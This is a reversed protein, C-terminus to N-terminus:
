EKHDFRYRYSYAREDTLWYGKGDIVRGGDRGYVKTLTGKDLTYVIVHSVNSSPLKKGCDRCSINSGWYPNHAGCSKCKAAWWRYMMREQMTDPNTITRRKTSPSSWDGWFINGSILRKLSFKGDESSAAKKNVKVYEKDSWSTTKTKGSDSYKACVQFTYYDGATLGASATFSNSTTTANNAWGASGKKGWRINYGTARSDSAWQVVVKGDDTASLTVQPVRPVEVAPIDITKRDSWDTYKLSSGEWWYARVKFAMTTDNYISSSATYSTAKGVDVPTGWPYLFSDRAWVVEFCEAINDSGWACTVSNGAKNYKLSSIVPTKPNGPITVYAKKSWDTYKQKTGSKYYGCVQVTYEDGKSFSGSIKCSTGTTETSGAWFPTGKLGWRIKYGKVGKLAGWSVSISNGTASVSVGSPGPVAASSFAPLLTLLGLVVAMVFSLLKRSSM